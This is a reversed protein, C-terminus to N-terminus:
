EIRKVKSGREFLRNRQQSRKQGKELSRHHVGAPLKTSASKEPGDRIGDRPSSGGQLLPIYKFRFLFNSKKLANTSISM